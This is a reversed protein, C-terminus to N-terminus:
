LTMLALLEGACFSYGVDYRLLITARYAPSTNIDQQIKTTFCKALQDISDDVDIPKKGFVYIVPLRSPRYFLTVLTLDM